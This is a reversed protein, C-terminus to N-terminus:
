SRAGRVTVSKEKLAARQALIEAVTRADAARRPCRRRGRTPGTAAAAHTTAMLQTPAWRAGAGMGGGAPAAPGGSRRAHRLLRRGVPEPDQALGKMPKAVAPRSTGRDAPRSGRAGGAIPHIKGLVVALRPMSGSSSRARPRPRPRGSRGRAAVVSGGCQEAAAPEQKADRWPSRSSCSSRFFRRVRMGALGRRPAASAYLLIEGPIRYELAAM